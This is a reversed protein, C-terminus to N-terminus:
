LWKKRKFYLVATLAVLAMIGVVVFYGNSSRLEPMNEFNMGYVGALFSLPVFVSTVMTLIKMVANTRYGIESNYLDQLGALMDRNSDIMEIMRSSHDLLHSLFPKTQKHIFPHESQKFRTLSERLPFVSKRLNLTEKKLLHLNRKIEESPDTLIKNEFIGIQDDYEQVLEFYQDIIDDILAHALYDAQRKRIRGSGNHIRARVASMIDEKHEQFSIVFQDGLFVAVNEKDARKTSENWNLAHLIILIGNEYEEYKPRQNVDAIDELVLPHIGFSKGIKEILVTDHIGRIDYWQVCGSKPLHINEMSDSTLEEELIHTEDYQVYHIPIIEDSKSGTYVITGPAQRFRNEFM